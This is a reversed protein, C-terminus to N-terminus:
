YGRNVALQAAISEFVGVVAPAIEPTRDHLTEDFWGPRAIKTETWPRDRHGFVPHRVAGRNTGWDGRGKATVRVGTRRGTRVSLKVASSAVREGLGGHKPLRDRAAAQVDKVLPQAAVKLGRLLETRLGVEGTAKLKQALWFLQSTGGGDIM